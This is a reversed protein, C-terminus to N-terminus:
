KASGLIKSLSPYGKMKFFESITMNSSVNLEIGLRKELSEVKTSSKTFVVKKRNNVTNM